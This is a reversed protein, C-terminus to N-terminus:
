LQQKCVWSHQMTDVRKWKDIFVAHPRWESQSLKSANIHIIVSRMATKTKLGGHWRLVVAKMHLCAQIHEVSLYYKRSFCWIVFLLPNERFHDYICCWILDAQVTYISYKKRKSTPGWLSQGCRPSGPLQLGECSLFPYGPSCGTVATLEAAGGMSDILIESLILFSIIM